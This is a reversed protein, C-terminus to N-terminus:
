NWRLNFWLKPNIIRIRCCRSTFPQTTASDDPPLDKLSSRWTETISIRLVAWNRDKMISLKEKNRYVVDTGLTSHKTVWDHRVRQQGMSQVGGTEETWPIKWALISFCTAIGKELPDEQGLSQVWTEQVLAERTAWLNFCKGAICSVQTRDRPRSSGRSFSIAVWELIRAQLIGHVSSGPPSCDM